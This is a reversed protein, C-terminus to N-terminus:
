AANGNILIVRDTTSDYLGRWQASFMVDSNRGGAVVEGTEFKCRPLTITYRNGAGDELAFSFAFETGAVFKEYNTGENFYFEMEGTVELTGLKMNRAILSGICQIARINNIISLSLSSICGDYPVGDIEFDQLNTVANMPTTVSVAPFTAGALQSDSVGTTPDLGFGSVTFAGTVISGIEMTLSLGEFCNGRYTHYQQPTMDQFHKQLTWSRLTIGNELDFTGADATPTWYSCLVSALYEKFSDYSLEFNIDGGASASTQVLDSEVRDPRLEESQTNEINFNLSESTMRVQSLPTGAAGGALTAAGWAGATSADTTALANGGTGGTKARVTVTTASWDIADVTAHATMAAAYDTGPVGGGNVNIANFLNKMTAKLNAGITVNGDVNTLTAQFTYTKGDIVITDADALNTTGRWTGVARVSTPTQGIVYEEVARLITLDAASM